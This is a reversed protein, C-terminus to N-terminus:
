PKLKISFHTLGAGAVGSRVSVGAADHPISFVRKGGGPYLLGSANGGADNNLWTATNQGDYNMDVTFIHDTTAGAKHTYELEYAVNPTLGTIVTEVMGDYGPALATYVGGGVESGSANYKRWQTTWDGSPLQFNPDKIFEPNNNTAPPPTTSAVTFAVRNGLVNSQNRVGAVAKYRVQVDDLAKAVNGIPFPKATVAQWSNARDVSIEADANGLGGTHTWDFTNNVDDTVPNIPASPTPLTTTPPPTTGGSLWSNVPGIIENIKAKAANFDLRPNPDGPQRQPINLPAIAM